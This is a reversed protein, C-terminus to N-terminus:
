FQQNKHFFLFLCFSRDKFGNITKSKKQLLFERERSCFISFFFIKKLPRFVCLHNDNGKHIHLLSSAKRTQKDSTYM